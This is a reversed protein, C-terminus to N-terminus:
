RAFSGDVAYIQKGTNVAIWASRVHTDIHLDDLRQKAYGRLEELTCFPTIYKDAPTWFAKGKNSDFSHEMLAVAFQDLSTPLLCAKEFVPRCASPGLTALTSIVLSSNALESLTGSEVRQTVNATFATLCEDRVERVLLSEQKDQNFSESLLCAAMTVCQNSITIARGLEVADSPALRKKLAKLAHEALTQPQLMFVENREQVRQVSVRLDVIKSIQVALDIPADLDLTSDELLDGVVDIFEFCIEKSLHTLILPRGKARQLFLRAIVVSVDGDHVGYQLAVQLRAPDALRGLAYNGDSLGIGGEVEAVLPFLFHVIERAADEIGDRAYAEQRVSKGAEIVEDRERLEGPISEHKKVFLAPFDRLLQHVAPAKVELAALALIDALEVEGRLREELVRATNFVREIDRPTKLLKRLGSLYLDAVRDHEPFKLAEEPFAQYARAFLRAMSSASPQPLKVRMQVVKELYQDPKPVQLVKLSEAVYDADWAILYRVRPLDGVAKVIRILEFVEKPFLRDADDIFVIVPHSFEELAKILLKRQGDLDPEKHEAIDQTATGTNQMIASILSALPEAGPILKIVDFVKAYALLEKAVNKGSQGHTPLSMAAAVQGFLQRLLADREGVLWPNFHVIVPSVKDERELLAEEVMALFSTKGAGWPGEIAIALSAPTADQRITEAVRRAFSRRHLRDDKSQGVTLPVDFGLTISKMKEDSEM